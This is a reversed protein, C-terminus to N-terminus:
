GVVTCACAPLSNVTNIGRRKVQAKDTTSIVEILETMIRRLM